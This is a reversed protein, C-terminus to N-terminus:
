QYWVLLVKSMIVVGVFLWEWLNIQKITAIKSTISYSSAFNAFTSYVCFM